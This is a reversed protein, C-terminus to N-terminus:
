LLSIGRLLLRVAVYAVLIATLRRLWLPSLLRLGLYSGLQGGLLVALVLPWYEMGAETLQSGDGKVLQGALGTVSNVLIYFSAFAAIRRPSGWSILHLVPSMFIGGGIGSLGAVFGVLGSVSLITVPKLDRQELRDVRIILAISSFLLASGLLLYFSSPELVILGGLFALPASVLIMPWFRRLDLEGARAFRICGGTVVTINCLLAIVPIMRYEVDGLALLASYTSGGGFGVSAYILAVAAFLSLLLASM